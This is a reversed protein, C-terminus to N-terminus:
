PDCHLVHHATLANLGDLLLARKRALPLGYVDWDLPSSASTNM